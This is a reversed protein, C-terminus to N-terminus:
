CRETSSVWTIESAFWTRWTAYSHSGDHVSFRFPLGLRTMLRAFATNEGYFEDTSQSYFSVALPQARLDGALGRLYREPSAQVWTESGRPGDVSPTNAVFYGSWSTVAEYESLNRLAINVAGFAGMSLGGIARGGRDTCARYRSQVYDVLDGSVFSAWKWSPDNVSNAWETDTSAKPGDSPAVVIMPQIRGEDILTGMQTVLDLGNVLSPASGPVGHLLYLVPYRAASRGYGPPLYVDVFVDERLSPSWITRSVVRGYSTSSVASGAQVLQASVVVALSAAMVALRGM